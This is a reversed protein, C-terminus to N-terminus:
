GRRVALVGDPPRVRHVCRELPGLDNGRVETPSTLSKDGAPRGANVVAAVVVACLAASVWFLATLSRRWRLIAILALPWFLYWQEEIALSWMHQMPSPILFQDFYSIDNIIFHWNAVYFLVALVGVLTQSEGIAYTFTALFVLYSVVGYSLALVRSMAIEPSLAAIGAGRPALCPM